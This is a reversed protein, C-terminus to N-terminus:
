DWECGTVTDMDVGKTENTKKILTILAGVFGPVLLGFALVGIIANGFVFANFAIDRPYASSLIDDTLSLELKSASIIRDIQVKAKTYYAKCVFLKSELRFMLMDPHSAVRADLESFAPLEIAECIEKLRAKASCPMREDIVALM